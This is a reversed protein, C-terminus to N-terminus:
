LRWQLLDLVKSNAKWLVSWDKDIYIDTVKMDQDIHCLCDNITSKDVGASYALSAWTHRASYFDLKGDPINKRKRYQKLGQALSSNMQRYDKFMRHFTFAHKKDYDAYRRYLPMIREDILVHMEANDSRRDRTKQRYYTIVGDVPAACSFLDPSNMGMLAFSLLYTDITRRERGSLEKRCDIMDQIVSVDVNRHRTPRQKPPTYFEFPNRILTEGVEDNNYKKRALGHIHKVAATYMTVGRSGKGYRATLWAEYDRMLRSTIKSIDLTDTGLFTKFNRQAYTYNDRSGKNKDKITDLWFALFDLRFAGNIRKEMYSVIEDLTMQQLTFMDLDAIAARMREELKRLRLMLAPDKIVLSRTLQSPSAIESTTIYKSKRNCTIRMRISYTSDKRRYQSYVVPSFTIRAM